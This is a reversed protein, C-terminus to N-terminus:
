WLLPRVIKEVRSLSDNVIYAYPVEKSKELEGIEERFRELIEGEELSRAGERERKDIREYLEKFTPTLVYVLSSETPLSKSLGMLGSVSKDLYRKMGPKVLNELDVHRMAHWVGNTIHPYSLLGQAEWDKFTTEDTFVYETEKERQRRPRTTVNPIKTFGHEELLRAISSKGSGSIGSLVWTTSPRLKTSTREELGRSVDEISGREDIGLVRALERIVREYEKELNEYTNESM